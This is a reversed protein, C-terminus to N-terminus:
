CTSTNQRKAVKEESKDDINRKKFKKKKLLKNKYKKEANKL